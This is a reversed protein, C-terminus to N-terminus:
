GRGSRRGDPECLFRITTVFRLGRHSRFCRKTEAASASSVSPMVFSVMLAGELKSLAEGRLRVPSAREIQVPM